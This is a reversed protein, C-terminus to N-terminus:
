DTLCTFKVFSKVVTAFKFIKFKEFMKDTKIIMITINNMWINKYENQNAKEAYFHQFNFANFFSYILSFCLVHINQSAFARFIETLGILPSKENFQNRNRRKFKPNRRTVESGDM